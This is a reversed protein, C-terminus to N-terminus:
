IPLNRTYMQIINKVNPSLGSIGYNKPEDGRNEYMWSVQNLVAMILDPPCTTYGATYEITIAEGATMEAVDNNVTIGTTPLSVATVPAFPLSLWGINSESSVVVQIETDESLARGTANEIMSQAAPIIIDELLDDDTSHDVRLWSKANALSVVSAPRDIITTTIM